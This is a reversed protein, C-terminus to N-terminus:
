QIQRWMIRGFNNQDGGKETLLTITASSDTIYKIDNTSGAVIAALNPLGAGFSMGSSILDNKDIVGDGTTDLVAYNLMVGKEADLEIIHGTGTSECPDSADVAATTFIIRGRSIQAGYIVREGLLKGGIVIPIYWGKQSTWNVDNQSTTLYEGGAGTFSGTISQAQLNGETIGSTGTTSDWIAYFAQRDTTVKDATEMFKGTGFYIIKGSTPHDAILPQVTIPQTAGGATTFLPKKSYAVTWGSAATSSLDFKWLRGKLDGAYAAQVVNQANVVLRVSSLGNDTEGSVISPTVIKAIVSGDKVNLVYLAAVGTASGYGNGVVVVGTGDTMRAVAPKSYAYGLDNFANATDPSDPARVEWLAKVVNGVTADFLQVGYYAKGGAGTGGVAVTQWSGKPILQTDFVAVQGDVTFKHLGTGYTVDALTSLLPLVTSPMYAYRRAGSGSDIVHMFGDNANVLLSSIMSKKTVLYDTYSPDGTLDTATQDTPLAVALPSNVIDGLLLTRVRLGTSNTGKAWEVLTTGKILANADLVAKQATSFSAYALTVPKATATNWSEFTAADSGAVITSDSTWKTTSSVAGATVDLPFAKITGHWDKPDFLTQYFYTGAQLSSSNSAGAGGSGAKANIDSLASNLADTLGDSDNAQYYKGHGHANDAADILMQNAVTFGVTYTSLNQTPFANTDWGKGVTDTSPTSTSKRMDIDYAFKALDDLYLTDGDAVSGTNPGDNKVGDWNPLKGAADPDAATTTPFDRDGSPLGDTVVVGYNRQCRYQIPSTYKVSKSSYYSSMGRFYRTIEYYTEALPTGGGPVLATIAAQLANYDLTAAMDAIPRAIKNGSSPNLSALGIRLARNNSVIDSAVTKAVKMRFTVPIDGGTYDKYGVDGARRVLYALYKATYYTSKGLVPDPLRLCVYYKSTSNYFMYSNVDSKCGYPTLSGLLVNDATVSDCSFGSSNCNFIAPLKTDNPDFDSAWIINSMSGSDDVLLMLNPPVAAASLVPVSAPTFAYVPAVSYLIFAMACFYRFCQRFAKVAPM